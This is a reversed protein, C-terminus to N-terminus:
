CRSEHRVERVPQNQSADVHVKSPETPAIEISSISIEPKAIKLSGDDALSIKVADGADLGNTRLWDKPLAMYRTYNMAIIQRNGFDLM